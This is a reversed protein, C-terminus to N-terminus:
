NEGKIYQIMDNIQQIIETSNLDFSTRSNAHFSGDDFRTQEKQIITKFRELEDIYLSGSEPVGDYSSKVHALYADISSTIKSTPFTEDYDVISKSYWFSTRTSEHTNLANEFYTLDHTSAFSSLDTNIKKVANAAVKNRNIYVVQLPPDFDSAAKIADQKLDDSWEELVFVYNPQINNLGNNIGDRLETREIVFENYVNVTESSIDKAPVFLPMKFSESNIDDNISHIDYPAMRQISEDSFGSFGFLVGKVEATGIKSDTIYSCCIGHNATRESYNWSDSYSDNLMDMSGYACTSHAMFSFEDPAEIVPILKGNVNIMCSGSFNDFSFEGLAKITTCNAMESRILTATKELADNYTKAYVKKLDGIVKILEQKNGQSSNYLNEIIESSDIKSVNYVNLIFDMTENGLLKRCQEIDELSLNDYYTKLFVETEQNSLGFLKTMLINKKEEVTTANKFLNDLHESFERQYDESYHGLTIRDTIITDDTGLLSYENMIYNIYNKVNSPDINTVSSNSEFYNLLIALKENYISLSDDNALENALLKFTAFKEPNSQQLSIVQSAHTPYRSMKEIFLEGIDSIESNMLGVNLTKLVHPNKEYMNLLMDCNEKSLYGLQEMEIIKSYDKIGFFNSDVLKTLNLKELIENGSEKVTKFIEERASDSIKEIVVESCSNSFLGRNEKFRQMVKEELLDVDYAASYLIFAKDNISQEFLNLDQLALISSVSRLYNLDDESVITALEFIKVKLMDSKANKLYERLSDKDIGSKMDLFQKQESDDLLKFLKLALSDDDTNIVQNFLNNKVILKEGDNLIDSSYVDISMKPTMKSLLVTREVEDMQAFYSKLSEQPIKEILTPDSNILKKIETVFEKNELTIDNVLLM